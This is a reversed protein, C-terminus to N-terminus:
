LPIQDFQKSSILLFKSFELDGPERRELYAIDQRSGLFSSKHTEKNNLYQERLLALSPISLKFM